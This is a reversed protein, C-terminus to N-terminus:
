RGGGIESEAIRASVLAALVAHAPSDGSEELVEVNELRRNKLRYISTPWAMASYPDKHTVAYVSLRWNPLAQKFLLIAADLWCWGFNCLSNIKCIDKAFEGDWLGFEGPRFARPAFIEWQCTSPNERVQSGPPALVVCMFRAFIEQTLDGGEELLGQLEQLRNDDKQRQDTTKRESM